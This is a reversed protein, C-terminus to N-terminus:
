RREERRRAKYNQITNKKDNLGGPKSIKERCLKSIM